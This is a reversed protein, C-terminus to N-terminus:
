HRDPWFAVVEAFRHDRHWAEAVARSEFMPVSTKSVPQGCDPFVTVNVCYERGDGYSNAPWGCNVIAPHELSGNSSLGSVVVMRGISPQM